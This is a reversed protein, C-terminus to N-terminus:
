QRSRARLESLFGADVWLVESAAIFFYKGDPTVGPFIAGRTPITEPIEAAASWSGDPRRFAVYAPSAAGPRRFLVFSEDQAAFPHIAPGEIPLATAEQYVGRTARARYIRGQREFYLTDDASLTPARDPDASNVGPGASVPPGWGSTTREVYFIDEDGAPSGDALTRWATFFLRRGDSSFSPHSAGTLIRAPATWRGDRREMVMVASVELRGGVSWALAQMDRSFAMPSHELANPDSVIDPAFVRLSGSPPTSDVYPSRLEPFVQARADCGLVALRARVAKHGAADALNYPTRGAGTRLDKTAGLEVLADVMALQGADAAVHLPTWGFLDRADPSLGKETLPRAFSASPGRAAAHLLTQGREDQAGYDITKERLIRGAIETMGGALANRLLPLAPAADLDLRAGRALLFDVIPKQRANVAAVVATGGRPTTRHLDAGHEVLLKVIDLSGISAATILLSGGLDAREANVDLGARILVDAMAADRGIVALRLLNNGYTDTARVLGPDAALLARVTDARGAQVAAIIDRAAAPPVAGLEEPVPVGPRVLENVLSVIRWAGEKKMLLFVDIGQEPRRPESPIRAAYHVIARAVDGIEQTKIAVISEEFARDELKSDTVFKVFERVFGDPNYVTMSTRSSRLVIVAEPIFLAKVDDWRVDRGRVFTVHRYLARVVEEAGGSSVAAPQPRAQAAASPAAQVPPHASEALVGAGRLAGFGALLAMGVIAVGRWGGPASM